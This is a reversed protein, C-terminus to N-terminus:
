RSYVLKTLRNTRNDEIVQLFYVGSPFRSADWIFTTGRFTAREVLNGKINFIKLTQPKTSFPFQISVSPNFPNPFANVKLRNARKDEVANGNLLNSAQLTLRYHYITEMTCGSYHACFASCDFACSVIGIGNAFDTTLGKLTRLYMGNIMISDNHFIVPISNCSLWLTDGDKANPKMIPIDFIGFHGDNPLLSLSDASIRMYISTSTDFKLMRITSDNWRGDWYNCQISDTELVNTIFVSDDHISTINRHYLGFTHHYYLGAGVISTTDLYLYTWWDGLTLPFYDTAKAISFIVLLLVICCNKM